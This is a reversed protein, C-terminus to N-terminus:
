SLMIIIHNTLTLTAVSYVCFNIPLPSSRPHTGNNVNKILNIITRGAHQSAHPLCLRVLFPRIKIFLYGSCELFYYTMNLLKLVYVMYSPRM